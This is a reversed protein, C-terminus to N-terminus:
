NHQSNDDTTICQAKEKMVEPINRSPKEDALLIAEPLSYPAWAEAEQNDSDHTDHRQICFVTPSNGAQLNPPLNMETHSKEASPSRTDTSQGTSTKPLNQHAQNVHNLNSILPM